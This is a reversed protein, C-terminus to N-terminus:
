CQASLMWFDSLLWKKTIAGCSWVATTNIMVESSVSSLREHMTTCNVDLTSSHFQMCEPGVFPVFFATSDFSTFLVAADGVVLEEICLDLGVM